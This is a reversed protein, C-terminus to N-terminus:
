RERRRYRGRRCGRSVGFRRRDWKTQRNRASRETQLQITFEREARETNRRQRESQRTQREWQVQGASHVSEHMAPTIELPELQPQAGMCQRSMQTLRRLLDHTREFAWGRDPRARRSNRHAQCTLLSCEGEIEQPCGLPLIGADHDGISATGSEIRRSEAVSASFPARAVPRARRLPSRM